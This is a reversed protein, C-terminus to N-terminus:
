AGAGGPSAPRDEDAVARIVQDQQGADMAVWLWELRAAVMGAARGREMPQRWADRMEKMVELYEGVLDGSVERLFRHHPAMKSASALESSGLSTRSSPMAVVNVRIGICLRCRYGGDVAEPLFYSVVFGRVRLRDVIETAEHEALESTIIAPLDVYICDPCHEVVVFSRAGSVALALGIREAPTGTLEFTTFDHGDIM